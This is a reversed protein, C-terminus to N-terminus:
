MKALIGKKWHGAAFGDIGFFPSGQNSHLKTGATRYKCVLFKELHNLPFAQFQASMTPTVSTISGGKQTRFHLTQFTIIKLSHKLICWKSLM